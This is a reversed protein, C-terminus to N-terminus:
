NRLQTTNIGQFLDSGVVCDARGTARVGGPEDAHV